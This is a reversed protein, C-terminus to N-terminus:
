EKRASLLCITICDVFVALEEIGHDVDMILLITTILIFMLIDLRTIGKRKPESIIMPVLAQRLEIEIICVTIPQHHHIRMM